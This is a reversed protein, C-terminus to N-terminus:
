GENNTSMTLIWLIRAVSEGCGATNNKRGVHLQLELRRQTESMEPWQACRGSSGKNPRAERTWCKQIDHNVDKGSFIRSPNFFLWLLVSDMYKQKTRQGLVPCWWPYNQDSASSYSLHATQVFMTTPPNAFEYEWGRIMPKNIDTLHNIHGRTLPNTFSEYAVQYTPPEQLGVYGAHPWGELHNVSLDM